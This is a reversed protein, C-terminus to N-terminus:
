CGEVVDRWFFFFFFFSEGDLEVGMTEWSDYGGDIRMWSGLKRQGGLELGHVDVVFVVGVM